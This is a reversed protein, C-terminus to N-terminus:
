PLDITKLHEQGDEGAVLVIASTENLRDLQTVGKLSEITEYTLGATGGVRETIGQVKDINETTIKMVGRASNAMLIYDKGGKNYVFMDLPRNQNGLEAITVGKVKEGAKLGNIPFRVLPTCTYAALLNTEGGITYATFTRVPSRTEFAGHNGHYIEVSTGKDASTFPFPISRLKSAFEENSLGAIFVRGDVYALDTITEMRPNGRPTEQSNPPNPLAAKSHKVNKLNVDSIEGSADIRVLVAAAENGSGRAVSLYVNGSAPNVALDSIRVGKADTGLAAAIKARVDSVNVRATAAAGNRDGTDIAYIMADMSDSIFLVGQPGFALQGASKLQVPGEKLSAAADEAPASAACFGVLLIAVLPKQFM